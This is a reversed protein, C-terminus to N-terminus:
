SPRASQELSHMIHWTNRRRGRSRGCALSTMCGIVARLGSAAGRGVREYTHSRFLIQVPVRQGLPLWYGRTAGASHNVFSGVSDVSDISDVQSHHVVVHDVAEGSRYRAEEVIGWRIWQAEPRAKPGSCTALQLHGAAAAAHTPPTPSAAAHCSAGRASTAATAATAAAVRNSHTLNRGTGHEHPRHMQHVLMRDPQVATCTSTLLFLSEPQQAM